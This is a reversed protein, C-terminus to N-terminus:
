KKEGMKEKAFMLKLQEVLDRPIHQHTWKDTFKNHNKIMINGEAYYKLEITYNDTIDILKKM